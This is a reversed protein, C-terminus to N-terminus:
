KVPPYSPNVIVPPPQTVIVPSPEMITPAHTSNSSDNIVSPTDITLSGDGSAIATITQSGAIQTKNNNGTTSINTNNNGTQPIVGAVASVMKYAGYWPAAVSVATGILNVWPAAYDRQVYQNLGDSGNSAPLQFVRLASVNQLIIPQTADAATMEFIPQSTARQSMAVKAEYYAKEGALQNATMCGTLPILLLLWLLSKM